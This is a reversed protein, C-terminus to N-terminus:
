AVEQKCKSSAIRTTAHRYKTMDILTFEKKPDTAFRCTKEDIENPDYPSHFCLYIRQNDVNTCAGFDFDFRLSAIRKLQTEQIISVQREQGHDSSGGFIYFRNKFTLSCSHDASTGDGFSLCVSKNFYGKANLIAAQQARSTSIALINRKDYTQILSSNHIAKESLFHGFPESEKCQTDNKCQCLYSGVINTCSEDQRCLYPDSSCEDIITDCSEGGYSSNACNCSFGGQYNTCVQSEPCTSNSVQCEDIDQCVSTSNEFGDKCKCNFSGDTNLCTERYECPYETCEDIDTCNDDEYGSYCSCNFTGPLNLCYARAQCIKNLCEDIDVCVNTANRVFGNKCDCQTTTTICEENVPCSKDDCQGEICALGTGHFGELCSCSFSGLTNFCNANKDCYLGRECEDIDTCNVGQFGTNCVCQLNSNNM